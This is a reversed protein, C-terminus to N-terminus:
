GIKTRQLALAAARFERLIGSIYSVRKYRSRQKIIAGGTSEAGFAKESRKGGKLQIATGSKSASGFSKNLDYLYAGLGSIGTEIGDLWSRSGEFEERFDSFKTMSFLEERTPETTIFEMRGQVFKLKQLKTQNLRLRIPGLPDYGRPFGIFSFLNGYGSLTQSTNSATPGAQLEKTVPHNEFDLMMKSKIKEFERITIFEMKKGMEKPLQRNISSKVDRPLM